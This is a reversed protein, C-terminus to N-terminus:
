CGTTSNKHWIAEDKIIGLEDDAMDAMLLLLYFM